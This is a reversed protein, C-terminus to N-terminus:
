KGGVSVAAGSGGMVVTTVGTGRWAKIADIERCAPCRNYGNQRAENAAADAKASQVRAQAQSVQAFASQAENIAAQVTGPLLVRQLRFQIKDFYTHGLTAQLDTALGTQVATQVRAINSQNAGGAAKQQVQQVAADGQNQVLACSSVLDACSTGSVVERLNNVVVPEVIAGLFNSWGENGEYPHKDDFTRTSFQTDFSKLAAEGKPTNNFVTNLYFTGEITVDVGDSTPVTIALADAGKCPEGGCTAMRFFRQQTDVPYYHTSSAWGNWTNGSGNPVVGRINHNDFPGGNRTVGIEGAEPKTYCGTLSLIAFAGLLVVVALRMFRRM